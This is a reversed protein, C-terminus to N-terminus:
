RRRLWMLIAMILGLLPLVLLSFIGLGIQQQPTILIRRNTVTKPQISLTDDGQQGLWSVSNLFVDGNLQQDFVGDSAFSSNGIVVLRSESNDAIASALPALDAADPEPTDAALPDAAPDAAESADTPTSTGNASADDESNDVEDSVPRSLAVGLVYPGEPAAEPDFALDGDESISEAQSQANTFLLPTTITGDLEQTEIPRVLPFFSRGQGFEQTIPHPGYNSVLPAAPGLGVFQGSGSTDLVLRDDLVVGWDNLLPTLGGDTRPDLLLLVGGGRALYNQLAKAEGEFFDQAPGAVVVVDADAPVAQEEALNLPEVTYSKDELNAAATAYGAASGDITLEEHGQTFYVTLTRDNVIQDLANTLRRESLREPAGLGQPDPTGVSQLFRREEGVELFVMGPAAVGFAQAQQPNAYPDIYEYSFNATQRRYSKLIQVDQANQAVDFVVVKVPTTLSQTITQTAPALTFLQNETLDLRTSSRVALFNVLGLIVVLALVAVTANTGAQTSRQQWFRGGSFSFGVLLLGIGVLLMVAPLWQWGSLGSAVLGATSLALGPWTLFKLWQSSLSRGSM